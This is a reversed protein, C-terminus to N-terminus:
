VKLRLVFLTILKAELNKMTWSTGEIIEPTHSFGSPGGTVAITFKPNDISITLNMQGDNSSRCTEDSSQLSFTNQGFPTSDCMDGVGDNDSDTQNPNATEPCNDDVNKIGDNDIDNSLIQLEIGTTKTQTM